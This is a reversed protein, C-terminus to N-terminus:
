ATVVHLSRDAKTLVRVGDETVVVDDEIRVGGYGPVYVGPEITFVMGAELPTTSGPDLSPDEHAELGLGHGIRHFFNKGYGAADIVRRAAADVEGTMVGPRVAAIAADHARLVVDHIERHRATPEGIVAMRTSDAKYGDVAAGFDLLVLDGKSLKRSSPELHPMASNPGSQALTAFSLSAGLEGIAAGFMLAVEIESAGARLRALARVFAEDTIAAARALTEIEGADKRLRLRRIEPAIDVLESAGTRSTVVEAAGVTLHDKEVAIEASGGVAQAVLGYPDEGDRWAVVKADSARAQAKEEELSPVILTAEGPRVALAMLREHPEAHFGTLYAISTPRTVYAVELRRGAM